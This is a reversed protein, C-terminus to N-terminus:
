GLKKWNLIKKAFFFFIKTGMKSPSGPARLGWAQFESTYLQGSRNMGPPRLTGLRTEPPVMKESKKKTCLFFNWCLCILCM